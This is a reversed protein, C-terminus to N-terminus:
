SNSWAINLMLRKTADRTIPELAARLAEYERWFEVRESSNHEDAFNAAAELSVTGRNRRSAEMIKYWAIKKVYATFPVDRHEYDGGEVKLYATVLAEQLIEDDDTDTGNSWRIFKRVPEAGGDSLWQDWATARDERDDNYCPLLRTIVDGAPRSCLHM